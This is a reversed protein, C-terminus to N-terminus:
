QSGKWLQGAGMWTSNLRLQPLPSDMLNKAILFDRHRPQFGAFKLCSYRVVKHCGEFAAKEKTIPYALLGSTQYASLTHVTTYTGRQKM